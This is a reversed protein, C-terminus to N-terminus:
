RCLAEGKQTITYYHSSKGAVVHKSLLGLVSSMKQVHYAITNYTVRLDEAIVTVTAAGSQKVQICINKYLQEIRPNASIAKANEVVVDCPSEWNMIWYPVISVGMPPMWDIRM